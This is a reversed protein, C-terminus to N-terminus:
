FHEKKYLKGVSRQVADLWIRIKIFCIFIIYLRHQVHPKMKKLCVQDLRKLIIVHLGFVIFITKLASVHAIISRVYKGLM